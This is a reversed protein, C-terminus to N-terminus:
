HMPGVTSGTWAPPDSAPFSDQSATDVLDSNKRRNMNMKSQSAFRRYGRRFLHQSAFAMIGYKLLRGATLSQIGFM